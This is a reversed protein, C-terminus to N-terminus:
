YSLRKFSQNDLISFLNTDIKINSFKRDEDLNFSLSNKQIDITSGLKNKNNSISVLKGFKDTTIFNGKSHIGLIKHNRM